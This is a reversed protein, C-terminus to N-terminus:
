FSWQLLAGGGEHNIWSSLRVTATPERPATLVLLLGNLTMVAGGIGLGLAMGRLLHHEQCLSRAGNGEPQREALGCLQTGDSNADLHAALAVYDRYRSDSQTTANVMRYRSEVTAVGFGIGALFSVGGVVTAVWGLTQQTTSVAPAVHVPPPAVVVPRTTTTHPPQLHRELIARLRPVTTERERVVRPHNSALAGLLHSRAAHWRELATEVLALHFLVWGSPCQTYLAHLRQVAIENVARAAQPSAARRTAYIRDASHDELECVHPQARVTRSAFTLAFVAFARLIMTTM